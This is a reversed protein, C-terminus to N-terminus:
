SGARLPRGCTDLDHDARGEHRALIDRQTMADAYSIIQGSVALMGDIEGLRYAAELAKRVSSGERILVAEIAALTAASTDNM